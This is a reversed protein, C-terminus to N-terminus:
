PVKPHSDSVCWLLLGWLAFFQWTWVGHRISWGYFIVAALLCLIAALRVM